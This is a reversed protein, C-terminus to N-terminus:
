WATISITRTPAGREVAVRYFDGLEDDGAVADLGHVFEVAVLGGGPGGEGVGV